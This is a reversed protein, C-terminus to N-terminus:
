PEEEVLDEEPDEELDEEEDNSAERLHYWNQHIVLVLLELAIEDDSDAALVIALPAVVALADEIPVLIVDAQHVPHLPAKLLVQNVLLHFTSDIRALQNIEEYM